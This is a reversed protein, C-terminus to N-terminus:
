WNIEDLEQELSDLESFDLDEELSEIESLDSEVDSIQEETAPEAAAPAPKEAEKACGAILAVVAIVFVLTLIKKIM